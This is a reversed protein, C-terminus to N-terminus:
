TEEKFFKEELGIAFSKAMRLAQFSDSGFPQGAYRV